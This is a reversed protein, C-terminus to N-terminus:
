DVYRKTIKQWSHEISDFFSLDIMFYDIIDDIIRSRFAAPL